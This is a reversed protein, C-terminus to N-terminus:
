RTRPRAAGALAKAVANIVAESTLTASSTADVGKVSQRQIIKHVTDTFASYFQKEEHRTIQITQIRGGQVTVAVHILSAYGMSSAEYVGDPVRAPDALEFLRIAELSDRARQREREIRKAFRGSAQAGIVKQYYDMAKAYDGNTRCADGAYMYAIAAVPPSSRAYSEALQLARSLEGMDAWVKVLAFQPATKEIQMLLNSAMPKSGLRYYCEALLPASNRFRTDPEGVGAKQWWFAARADDQLLNHYFRGLTDMIRRLTEPRDKNVELLHHLLKTGERWKAPNPNIIDWVYQGMNRQSNWGNDPPPEPWTLDLTRPYNLPTSDYWDPPTAGQQEILKVIDGGGTPKGASPNGAAPKPRPDAPNAAPMENLVYRNGGLTVAHIREYPYVRTYTRGGMQTAVTVERAERDIKTVNGELKAGSLLELLDAEAAVALGLWGVLAILLVMRRRMSNARATDRVATQFGM